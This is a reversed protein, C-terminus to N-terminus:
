TPEKTCQVTQHDLTIEVPNILVLFGKIPFYNIEQLSSSSTRNQNIMLMNELINISKFRYSISRIKIWDCLTGMSHSCTLSFYCIYKTIHIQHSLLVQRHNLPPHLSSNLLFFIFFHCLFMFVTELKENQRKLEPPHSLDILRDSNRQVMLRDIARLLWGSGMECSHDLQFM